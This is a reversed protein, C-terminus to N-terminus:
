EKLLGKLYDLELLLAERRMRNAGYYFLKRELYGIQLRVAKRNHTNEFSNKCKKSCYKKKPKTTNFYKKCNKCTKIM